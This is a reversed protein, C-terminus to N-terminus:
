KTRWNFRYRFQFRQATKDETGACPADDTDDTVHEQLLAGFECLGDEGLHEVTCACVPDYQFCVMSGCVVCTCAHESECAPDSCLANMTIM